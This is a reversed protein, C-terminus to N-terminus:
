YKRKNGPLARYGPNSAGLGKTVGLVRDPFSSDGIKEMTQEGKGTKVM